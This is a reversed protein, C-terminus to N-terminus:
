HGTQQVRHLIGNIAVRSASPPFTTDTPWGGRYKIELPTLAAVYAPTGPKLTPDAQKKEEIERGVQISALGDCHAIGDSYLQLSNKFITWQGTSVTGGRQATRALDAQLLEVWLGVALIFFPLGYQAPTSDLHPPPTFLLNLGTPMGSNPGLADSLGHDFSALDGADFVDGAKARTM